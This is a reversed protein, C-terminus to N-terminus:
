PDMEGKLEEGSLLSHHTNSVNVWVLRGFDDTVCAHWSWYYIYMWCQWVWHTRASHKPLDM